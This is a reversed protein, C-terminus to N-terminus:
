LYHIMISVKAIASIESLLSWITDGFLSLLGSYRVKGRASATSREFGGRRIAGPVTEDRWLYTFASRDAIGWGGRDSVDTINGSDNGSTEDSIVHGTSAM